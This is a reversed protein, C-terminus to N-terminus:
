TSELKWPTLQMFYENALERALSVSVKMLTGCFASGEFFSKPETGRAAMKYIQVLNRVLEDEMKYRVHAEFEKDISICDWELYCYKNKQHITIYPISNQRCRYFWGDRKSKQARTHMLWPHDQFAIQNLSIRMWEGGSKDYGLALHRAEFRDTDVRVAPAFEFDDLKAKLAAYTKYGSLAAILESAHSSRVEYDTMLVNKLIRLNAESLILISMSKEENLM